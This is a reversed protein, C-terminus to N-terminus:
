QVESIGRGQRREPLVAEELSTNYSNNQWEGNEMRSLLLEAASDALERLPKGTVKEPAAPAETAASIGATKNGCATLLLVMSLALLILIWKRM